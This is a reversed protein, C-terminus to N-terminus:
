QFVTTEEDTLASALAKTLLKQATAEPLDYTKPIALGHDSATAGLSRFYARRKRHAEIFGSWLSCDEGTLDGLVWRVDSVVQVKAVTVHRGTGVGLGVDVVKTREDILAQDGVLNGHLVGM